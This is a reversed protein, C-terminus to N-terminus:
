KTIPKQRFSIYIRVLQSEIFFGVNSPNISLFAQKSCMNSLNVYSFARHIAELWHRFLLNLFLVSLLMSQNASIKVRSRRTNLLESSLNKDLKFDVYTKM